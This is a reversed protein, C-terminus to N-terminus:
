VPRSARSSIAPKITFPSQKKEFLGILFGVLKNPLKFYQLIGLLIVVIGIIIYIHYKIWFMAFWVDDIGKFQDRIWGAWEAPKGDEDIATGDEDVIPSCITEYKMDESEGSSSTVGKENYLVDELRATANPPSISNIKKKLMSLDSPRMDIPNSFVIMSNTSKACKGGWELGNERLYYYGGGPMVMSLNFDGGPSPSSTGDKHMPVGKLYLSKFWDVSQSSSNENTAQRVPICVYINKGDGRHLLILEAAYRNDNWKNVSESYLRVESIEIKGVGSFSVDNTGDYCDIKLYDKKNKIKCSSKTTNFKYDYKCIVGCSQYKKGSEINLAGKCSM